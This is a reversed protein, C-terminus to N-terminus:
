DIDDTVETDGLPRWPELRSTPPPRPARLRPPLPRGRQSDGRPLIQTNKENALDDDLNEVGEGYTELKDALNTALSLAASATAAAAGFVGEAAGEVLGPVGNLEAGQLPGEVLHGAARLVGAVVAAVLGAETVASVLEKSQTDLKPDGEETVEAIHRERLREVRRARANEFREEM